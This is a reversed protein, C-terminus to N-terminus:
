APIHRRFNRGIANNLAYQASAQGVIATEFTKPVYKYLVEETWHMGDYTENEYIFLMVDRLEEPSLQITKVLRDRRRLRDRRGNLGLRDSPTWLAPQSPSPKSDSAFSFESGQMGSFNSEESSNQDRRSNGPMNLSHLHDIRLTQPTLPSNSDYSDSGSGHGM